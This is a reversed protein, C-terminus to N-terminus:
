RLDLRRLEATNGYHFHSGPFNRVRENFEAGFALKLLGRLGEVRGIDDAHFGASRGSHRALRLADRSYLRLAFPPGGVVLDMRGCDLTRQNRTGM